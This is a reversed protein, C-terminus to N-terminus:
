KMVKEGQASKSKKGEPRPVVLGEALGVVDKQFLQGERRWSWSPLHLKTPRQSKTQEEFEVQLDQM